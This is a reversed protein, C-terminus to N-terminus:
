KPTFIGKTENPPAVVVAMSYCQQPQGIIQTLPKLLGPEQSPHLSPPCGFKKREETLITSGYYCVVDGECGMDTESFKKLDFAKCTSSFTKHDNPSPQPNQQYSIANQRNTTLGAM